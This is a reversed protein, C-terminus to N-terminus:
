CLVQVSRLRRAQGLTRSARKGDLRQLNQFANRFRSTTSFYNESLAFHASALEPKFAKKVFVTVTLTVFETTIVSAILVVQGRRSPRDPQPIFSGCVRIAKPFHM